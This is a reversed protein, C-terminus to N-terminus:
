PREVLLVAMPEAAEISPATGRIALWPREANHPTMEGVFLLDPMEEGPRRATSAVLFGNDM